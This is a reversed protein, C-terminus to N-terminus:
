SSTPQKSEWYATRQNDWQEASAREELEPLLSADPHARTLLDQLDPKAPSTVYPVRLAELDTAVRPEPQFGFVVCDASWGLASRTGSIWISSLVHGPYSVSLRQAGGPGGFHQGTSGDKFTFSFGDVCDGHNVNAGTIPNTPAVNVM